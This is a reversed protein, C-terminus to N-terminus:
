AHLVTAHKSNGTYPFFSTHHGPTTNSHTNM